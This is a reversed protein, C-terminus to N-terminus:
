NMPPEFVMFRVGPYSAEAVLDVFRIWLGATAPNEGAVPADLRRADMHLIIGAKLWVRSAKGKADTQKRGALWDENALERRLGEDAADLAPKSLKEPALGISLSDIRTPDASQTAIFYYRCQTLTLGTGVVSVDFNGGGIYPVGEGGGGEPRLTSHALMQAVPMGPAAVLLSHTPEDARPSSGAACIGLLLLACLALLPRERLFRHRLSTM